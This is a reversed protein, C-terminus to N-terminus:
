KKIEFEVTPKESYNNFEIAYTGDGDYLFYLYKTYSAGSRLDGATDIDEDFYASVSNAKTGNSGYINYYFMNLGHTEDKLNKVTIPLKVTTQGNYESFQNDVVDFSYNSGITIELDDFTFTEDFGYVSKNSNTGNNQQNNNSQNNSNQNNTLSSNNSSAAYVIIFIVLVICVWFWWKEYFKSDKM